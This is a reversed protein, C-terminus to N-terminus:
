KLKFLSMFIAHRSIWLFSLSNTLMIGNQTFTNQKKFECVITSSASVPLRSRLINQLVQKTINTNERRERRKRGVTDWCLPLAPYQLSDEGLEGDDHLRHSFLAITFSHRDLTHRGQYLGSWVDSGQKYRSESEKIKWFTFGM